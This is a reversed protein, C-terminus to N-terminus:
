GNLSQSIDNSSQYLTVWKGVSFLKEMSKEEDEKLFIVSRYYMYMHMSIKRM